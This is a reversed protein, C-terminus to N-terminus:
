LDHLRSDAPPSLASPFLLILRRRQRRFPRAQLFPLLVSPGLQEMAAFNNGLLTNIFKPDPDEGVRVSMAKQAACTGVDCWHVNSEVAALIQCRRVKQWFRGRALFALHPM